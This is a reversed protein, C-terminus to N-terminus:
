HIQIYGSRSNIIPYIECNAEKNFSDIAITPNVPHCKLSLFWIWESVQRPLLYILSTRGEKWGVGWRLKASNRIQPHEVIYIYKLISCALSRNSNIIIVRRIINKRKDVNLKLFQFCWSLVLSVWELSCLLLFLSVVPPVNFRYAFRLWFLPFPEEERDACNWRLRDSLPRGGDVLLM